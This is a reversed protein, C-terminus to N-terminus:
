YIYRIEELFRRVEFLHRTRILVEGNWVRILYAGEDLLRM